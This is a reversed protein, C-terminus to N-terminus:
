KRLTCNPDTYMKYAMRDTRLKKLYEIHNMEYVHSLNNPECIKWLHGTEISIKHPKVYM